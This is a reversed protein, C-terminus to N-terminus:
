LFEVRNLMEEATVVDAYLALRRICEGLRIRHMEAFIVGSHEEGRGNIAAAIEILDVDHTFLVAGHETAHALQAEDSMGVKGEDYVSFSEM